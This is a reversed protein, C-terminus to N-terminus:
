NNSRMATHHCVRWGAKEDSMLIGWPRIQGDPYHIETEVIHTMGDGYSTKADTIRYSDINPFPHNALWLPLPYEKQKSRCVWQYAAAHDGNRLADLYSTAAATMGAWEKPEALRRYAITAPCVVCTLLGIVVILITFEDYNRHSRARSTMADM